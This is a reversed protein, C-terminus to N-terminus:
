RGHGDRVEQILENIDRALEYYRWDDERVHMTACTGHHHQLKQLLDGKSCENDGYDNLAHQVLKRITRPSTWWEEDVREDVRPDDHDLM